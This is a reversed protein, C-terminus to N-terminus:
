ESVQDVDSTLRTLLSPSSLPSTPPSSKAFAVSDIPDDGNAEVGAMVDQLFVRLEWSTLAGEGHLDLARWFYALSAESGPREHALAFNLFGKFDLRGEYTPCVEFVRSLFVSTASGDAYEQLEQKSLMGDHNRDLQLFARYTRIACEISFWSSPAEHGTAATRAAAAVKAAKEMRHDDGSESGSGDSGEGSRSGGDGEESRDSREGGASLPEGGGARLAQFETLASSLLLARVSAAGVGSRGCADVLLYCTAHAIYFPVFSHGRALHQTDRLTPISAVQDHVFNELEAERVWPGAGAHEGQTTDSPTGSEYARLALRTRLLEFLRAAYAHASKAAVCGHSDVRLQLFVSSLGLIALATEEFAVRAAAQLNDWNVREGHLANIPPSVRRVLEHWFVGLAEDHPLGRRLFEASEATLHLWAPELRGWAKALLSSIDDGMDVTTQGAEFHRV